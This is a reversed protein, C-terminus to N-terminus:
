KSMKLMATGILTVGISVLKALDLRDRLFFVGFLVAFVMSTERVASVLALPAQTMAWTVIWYALLSIMGGLVGVKWGKRLSVRVQGRRLYLAVLTIPIGNFLHSWLTYSGASEALRAGLGDVVTYGAILVGTSVAYLAAKPERFGGAGRTLTLSIIGLAIVAVSIGAQTTLTEGIIAVSILAVVLPSCGRSIPYVHSLDGYRYAKILFLCYATNLVCSAWIFPWSEPTPFAVFPVVVIGVAVQSMMMIAIMVLRDANVKVLANWAAHLVAAGFVMAFVGATM